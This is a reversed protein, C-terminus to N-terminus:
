DEVWSYFRALASRRILVLQDCGGGAKGRGVAILVRGGELARSQAELRGEKTQHGRTESAPFLADVNQPATFNRTVSLLAGTPMEFYFCLDYRGDEHEGGSGENYCLVLHNRGRVTGAPAGMRREIEVRTETLQYAKELGQAPVTDAGSLALAVLACGGILSRASM